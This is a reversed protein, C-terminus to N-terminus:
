HVLGLSDLNSIGIDVRGITRSDDSGDFSIDTIQFHKLKLTTHVLNEADERNTVDNSVKINAEAAVERGKYPRIGTVTFNWAAYVHSLPDNNAKNMFLQTESLGYPNVRAAKRRQRRSNEVM